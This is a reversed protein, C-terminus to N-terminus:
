GFIRRFVDLETKFTKALDTKDFDYEFRLNYLPHVGAAALHASV